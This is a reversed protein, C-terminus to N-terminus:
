GQRQVLGVRSTGRRLVPMRLAPVRDKPLHDFISPPLLQSCRTCRSSGHTRLSTVKKWYVESEMSNGIRAVELEFTGNVYEDAIASQVHERYRVRAKALHECGRPLKRSSVAGRCAICRGVDVGRNGGMNSMKLLWSTRTQHHRCRTVSGIAMRHRSQANASATKQANTGMWRCGHWDVLRAADPWNEADTLHPHHRRRRLQVPRRHIQYCHM